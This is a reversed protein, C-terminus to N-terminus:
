VRRSASRASSARSAFIGLCANPSCSESRGGYTSECPSTPACGGSSRIYTAPASSGPAPGGIPPTARSTANAWPLPKSSRSSSTPGIFAILGAALADRYLPMSQYSARELQAATFILAHTYLQRGGRGSYEPLGECTRTLAFRGEPLPHFNVSVRNSDDILLAGNSPAWSAVARADAESVGRSRSVVHYGSKLDRALSTYVAQEARVPAGQSM